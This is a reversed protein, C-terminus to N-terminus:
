QHGHDPHISQCKRPTIGDPQYGGNPAMGHTMIYGRLFSCGPYGMIKAPMQWRDDDHYFHHSALRSLLSRRAVTASLDGNNFDWQGTVQRTLSVGLGFTLCGYPLSPENKKM